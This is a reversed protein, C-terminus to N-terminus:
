HVHRRRARTDRRWTLVARRREEPEAEAFTSAGVEVTVFLERWTRAMLLPLGAGPRARRRAEGRAPLPECRARARRGHRRRARAVQRQALPRDPGIRRAAPPNPGHAPPREM